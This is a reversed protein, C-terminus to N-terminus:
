GIIFVVCFACGDITRCWCRGDSIAIISGDDLLDTLESIPLTYTPILTRKSM